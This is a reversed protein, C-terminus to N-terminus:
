RKNSRRRRKTAYVTGLPNPSVNINMKATANVGGGNLNNVTAAAAASPPPYFQPHSFHNSLHAAAAAAAASHHQSHPGHNLHHHHAPSFGTNTPEHISVIDASIMNNVCM